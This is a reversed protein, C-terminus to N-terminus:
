TQWRVLVGVTTVTTVGPPYLYFSQDKDECGERSCTGNFWRNSGLPKLGLRRAVKEISVLSENIPMM